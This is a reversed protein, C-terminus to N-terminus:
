RSGASRSRWLRTSWRTSSSRTRGPRHHGPETHLDPRTASASMASGRVPVLYDVSAALDAALVAAQEPTLGAWPALEDCSLRLGIIGEGVVERVAGLVERLLMSKDTGYADGRQNTLASSFQRLLSYQGADLEVGDVGSEVALAASDRFGEVLARIETEELEMPLERSAVDPVRSPAWLAQQGFASSGQSGAHGLGALVLTRHPRCAAGVSAWGPGCLAALPAREYPWDSDHVSATETVVIGAGGAARAAYYAVHRDSLVRGRALNTEHPGFLVRSSAMRGAITFPAALTTM